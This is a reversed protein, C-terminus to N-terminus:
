PRDRRPNDFGWEYAMVVETDWQQMRAVFSQEWDHADHPRKTRDCVVACGCDCRFARMYPANPDPQHQNFDYCLVDKGCGTCRFGARTCETRRYAWDPGFRVTKNM